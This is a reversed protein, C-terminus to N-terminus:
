WFVGSAGAQWAQRVALLVEVPLPGFRLQDKVPGICVCRWGIRM